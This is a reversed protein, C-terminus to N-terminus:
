GLLGIEIRHRFRLLQGAGLADISRQRLIVKVRQQRRRCARCEHDVRHKAVM